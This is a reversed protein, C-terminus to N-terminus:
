RLVDVGATDRLQFDLEPREPLGNVVEGLTNDRQLRVDIM